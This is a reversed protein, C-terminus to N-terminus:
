DRCRDNRGDGAYPQHAGRDAAKEEVLQPWRLAGSEAESTEQEEDRGIGKGAGAQDVQRGRREAGHQDDQLYAMTFGSFRCFSAARSFRGSSMTAGPTNSSIEVLSASRM